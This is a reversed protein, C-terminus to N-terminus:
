PRYIFVATGQDGDAPSLRGGSAVARQLAGLDGRVSLRFVVADPLVERLTLGRVVGLSELYRSVEAYQARTSVGRVTLVLEARRGAAASSYKAAYRDAVAHIGDELGGSLSLSGGDSGEFTWNVSYGGRGTAVAQGILVGDAGYRGAAAVLSSTAGSWAQELRRRIDEGGAASPWTLPLGRQAAAAELAKRESSAAESTVLGRQGGGRDVALWVLTLPRQEGWFPLGATAIAREIADGDFTVVMRGASARRYSSMYRAPDSVLSELAPLDPADRRGTVRILVDALAEHFAAQQGGPGFNVTSEYLNGIGEACADAVALLWAVACLAAMVKRAPSSAM